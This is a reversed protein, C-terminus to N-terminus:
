PRERALEDRITDVRTRASSIGQAALKEYEILLHGRSIHYPRPKSRQQSPPIEHFSRTDVFAKVVNTVHEIAQADVPAPHPPPLSERSSPAAKLMELASKACWWRGLATELEGFTPVRTMPAYEGAALVRGTACVARASELTFAHDPLTLMPLMKSIASGAREPDMPSVMKALLAAWMPKPMASM